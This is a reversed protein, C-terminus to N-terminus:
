QRRRPRSPGMRRPHGRLSPPSLLEHATPARDTSAAQGRGCAAQHHSRDAPRNRRANRASGSRGPEGRTPCWGCPDPHRSRSLGRAADRDTTDAPTVTIMVPLGLTDVAIVGARNWRWFHHYVTQWPPYDCPLARWKVGNDVVHRIADIVERRHWKEPRGGTKTQCAPVPLLPEILAWEAVTTDSPYRRRRSSPLM